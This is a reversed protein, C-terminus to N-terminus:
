WITNHAPYPKFEIDAENPAVHAVDYIVDALHLRAEIQHHYSLMLLNIPAQGVFPAATIPCLLWQREEEATKLFQRLDAFVGLVASIRMMIATELVLPKRWRAARVWKHFERQGCGLMQLYRRQSLKWRQVINTLIRMYRGSLRQRKDDTLYNM